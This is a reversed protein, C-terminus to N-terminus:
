NLENLTNLATTEFQKDLSDSTQTEKPDAEPSKTGKFPDHKGAGKYAKHDDRSFQANTFVHVEGLRQLSIRHLPLGETILAAHVSLTKEPSKQYHM